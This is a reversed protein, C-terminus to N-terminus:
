ITNQRNRKIFPNRFNNDYDHNFNPPQYLIEMAQKINIHPYKKMLLNIETIMSFRAKCKDLDSWWIDISDYLESTRPIVIVDRFNAFEVKKKSNKSEEISINYNNTHFNNYCEFKSM